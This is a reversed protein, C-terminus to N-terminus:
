GGHWTRRFMFWQDPYRRIGEELINAIEQTIAQVDTEPNGTTSPRDLLRVTCQFADDPERAVYGVLIKAGTRLSLTACGAPWYTQQGFLMIPVGNPEDLVPRDIIVAVLENNRLARYVQKLGYEMPIPCLGWNAHYRRVVANIGLISHMEAIVNVKYGRSALLLGAIMPHGFHGSVLLVGKGSALASEVIEWANTKLRAELDESSMGPMLLMDAILRTYNRYARRATRRVKEESADAGLVHRMNEITIVRKSHWIAFAADALLTAVAYCFSPPLSRAISAVIVVLRYLLQQGLNNSILSQQDKTRRSM